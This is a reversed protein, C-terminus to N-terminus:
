FLTRDVRHVVHWQYKYVLFDLPVTYKVEIHVDSTDRWVKIDEKNVPLQVEDAKIKVQDAMIENTMRPLSAQDAEKECFDELDAVAIRVPVIKVAILVAAALIALGVICGINNAGRERSRVM